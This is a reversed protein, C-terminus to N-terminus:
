LHCPFQILEPGFLKLSEVKWRELKWWELKWWELKYNRTACRAWEGESIGGTEGKRTTWCGFYRLIFYFWCERQGIIQVLVIWCSRWHPNGASLWGDTFLDTAEYLDRWEKAQEPTLLTELGKLIAVWTCFIYTAINIVFGIELSYIRVDVLESLSKWTFITCSTIRSFWCLLSETSLQPSHGPCNEPLFNLLINVQEYLQSIYRHLYRMNRLSDADFKPKLSAEFKFNSLDAGDDYEQLSNVNSHNYEEVQLNLGWPM